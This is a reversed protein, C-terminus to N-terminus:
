ARRQNKQGLNKRPSCCRSGRLNDGQGQAVREWTPDSRLAAALRESSSEAKGGRSSAAARM